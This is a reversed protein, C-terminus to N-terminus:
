TGKKDSPLRPSKVAVEILHRTFIMLLHNNLLLLQNWGAFFQLGKQPILRMKHATVFQGSKFIFRNIFPEAANAECGILVKNKKDHKDLVDLMRDTLAIMADNKWKGSGFSHGHSKIYCSYAGGGLNQDFFQVYDVECNAVIKEFETTAIQKTKECAPCM